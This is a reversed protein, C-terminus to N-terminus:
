DTRVTDNENKKKLFDDVVQQSLKVCEDCIYAKPGAILVGVFDKHRGCFSCYHDKSM